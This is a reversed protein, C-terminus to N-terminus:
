RFQEAVFFEVSKNGVLGFESSQFRTKDSRECRRRFRLAFGALPRDLVRARRCLRHQLAGGVAAQAFFDIVGEDPAAIPFARVAQVGVHDRGAADTLVLHGFADRRLEFVNSASM